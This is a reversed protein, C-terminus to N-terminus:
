CDTYVIVIKAVLQNVDCLNRAISKLGFNNLNTDTIVLTKTGNSETILNTKNLTNNFSHFNINFRQTAGCNLDKGYFTILYPNFKSPLNKIEFTFRYERVQTSNPMYTGTFVINVNTNLPFGIVQSYSDKSQIDVANKSYLLVEGKKLSCSM